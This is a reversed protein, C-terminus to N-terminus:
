LHSKMVDDEDKNLVQTQNQWFDSTLPGTKEQTRTPNLDSSYM